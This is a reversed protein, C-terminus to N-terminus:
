VGIQSSAQGTGQTEDAEAVDDWVKLCLLRSSQKSLLMPLHLENTLCGFTLVRNLIQMRPKMAFKSVQEILEKRAM